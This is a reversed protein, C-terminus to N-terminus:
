EDADCHWLDGEDDGDAGVVVRWAYLDVLGRPADVRSTLETMWEKVLVLTSLTETKQCARFRANIIGAASNVRESKVVGAPTVVTTSAPFYLLFLQPRHRPWFCIRKFNDEELPDGYHYSVAKGSAAAAAEDAVKQETLMREYMDCQKLFEHQVRTTWDYDAGHGIAGSDESPVARGLQRRREMEMEYLLKSESEFEEPLMMGVRPRANIAARIAPATKAAQWPPALASGAGAGAGAGAGVGGGSGAGAGGEGAGGGGNGDVHLMRELTNWLFARAQNRSGASSAFYPWMAPDCYAAANTIDDLELKEERAYPTLTIPESWIRSAPPKAADMDIVAVSAFRLGLQRIFEKIVPKIVCAPDAAAIQAAQLWRFFVYPKISLTYEEDCGMRAYEALMPEFLVIIQKTITRQGRWADFAEQWQGLWAPKTLQWRTNIKDFVGLEDLQMLRKSQLIDFLFRTPCSNMVGLAREFGMDNLQVYELVARRKDSASFLKNVENSVELAHKMMETEGTHKGILHAEHVSCGVVSAYKFSGEVLDDGHMFAFDTKVSARNVYTTDMAVALLHKFPDLPSKEKIKKYLTRAYFGADHVEDGDHPQVFREYSLLLHHPRLVFPAAPQKRDKTVRPFTLSLGYITAGNKMTCNDNQATFLSTVSATRGYLNVNWDPKALAEQLAAYKAKFMEQGLVKVRKRITSEDPPPDWKLADAIYVIGANRVILPPLAGLVVGKAWTDIVFARERPSPALASPPQAVTEDIKDAKRKGSAIPRALIKELNDADVINHKNALHDKADSFVVVPKGDRVFEVKITADCAGVSCRVHLAPASSESRKYFGYSFFRAFSELDTDGKKVVLHGSSRLFEPQQGHEAELIKVTRVVCPPMGDLGVLVAQAASAAAASSSSSAAGAGAAGEGSM